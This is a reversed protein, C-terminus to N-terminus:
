SLEETGGDGALDDDLNWAGRRTPRELASALAALFRARPWERAGFRELHPTHVQCDILEVGWRELQRVLAVFALKSADDRRAFM